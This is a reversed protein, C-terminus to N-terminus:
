SIRALGNEFDYSMDYKLPIIEKGTKDIFGYKGDLSIKALGNEFDNTTDYKLPIIENGTKDVFGDKNNLSVRAMGDKFDFAVDYKLPIIVNGNTDIFSMKDNITVRMIGLDYRIVSIESCNDIKFITKEITKNQTLKQNVVQKNIIEIKRNADVHDNAEEQSFSCISSLLLLVSSFIKKM